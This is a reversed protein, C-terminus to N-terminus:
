LAFIEELSQHESFLDVPPPEYTIGEAALNGRIYQQMQTVLNNMKARSTRDSDTKTPVMADVKKTQENTLSAGSAWQQIRLHIADIAGENKITDDRKLGKPTLWDVVAAGPYFGAVKGDANSNAFTEAANIVGLLNGVNTKTTATIKSNGLLRTLDAATSATTLLGSNLSQEYAFKLEDLAQASQNIKLRAREIALGQTKMDNDFRQQQMQQRFEEGLTQGAAAIAEEPSQADRITDLTEQDAGAQAAKMMVELVAKKNTQAEELQRARDELQAQMVIAQKKQEGDLLPKIEDLQAKRIDLERTQAAFELQVAKDISDKAMTLDNNSAYYAAKATLLQANVGAQQIQNKRLEAATQPALGGATIGRGEANQQMTNEITGGPAAQLALFASQDSLGQIRAMNANNAAVKAQYGQASEEKARMEEPTVAADTFDTIGKLADQFLKAYQGQQTGQSAIDNVSSTGGSQPASQTGTQTPAVPSPISANVAQGNNVQPQPPLQIPAQPALVSSNIAGPVISGTGVFNGKQDITAM